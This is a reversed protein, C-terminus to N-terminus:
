SPAASHGVNVFLVDLDSDPRSWLAFLLVFFFFLFFPSNCGRVFNQTMQAPNKEETEKMAKTM